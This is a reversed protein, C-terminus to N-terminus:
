DYQEELRELERLSSEIQEMQKRVTSKVNDPVDREELVDRYEDLANKDGRICEELVAEEKDSSLATKIDMWTQHLSASGEKSEKPNGGLATIEQRLESNFQNRQQAHEMLFNKLDHNKVKEAANQFGDVADHNKEVLDNLEEIVNKTNM